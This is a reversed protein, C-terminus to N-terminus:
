GEAKNVLSHKNKANSEYFVDVKTHNNHRIMQADFTGPNESSIMVPVEPQQFNATAQLTQGQLRVFHTLCMLVLIIGTIKRTLM